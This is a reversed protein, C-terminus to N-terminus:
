FSWLLAHEEYNGIVGEKGQILVPEFKEICSDGPCGPNYIRQRSEMCWDQLLAAASLGWSRAMPGANASM